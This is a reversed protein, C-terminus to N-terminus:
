RNVFQENLMPGYELYLDKGTRGTRNSKTEALQSVFTEEFDLMKTTFNAEGILSLAKKANGIVIRPEPRDVDEFFWGCSTFSALRYKHVELLKFINRNKWYSHDPIYKAVFEKEYDTNLIVKVFERKANFLDPIVDLLINNTFTDLNESLTHVANFLKAKWEGNVRKNYDNYDVSCECDQKWRKLDGCLCSWSTFDKIYVQDRVPTELFSKIVTSKNVGKAELSYNMLYNLFKEGSKFHHGYREGDTAGLIIHNDNLPRHTIYKDTFGDSNEMASSDFSLGDSVDKDYFAVCIRRNEYLQTWYIKTTDVPSESQWPALIVLRIGNKALVDLVKRSVATEALWFGVPEYGFRKIFDQVGWYVELEIDEEKLLPLISHNWSGCFASGIGDRQYNKYSEQIIKKYTEPDYGEIWEALTRYLDFTILSFNGTDANPKYCENCIIENWNAFRGGTIKKAFDDSQMEGTFPNERPPQYFHGHICVNGSM